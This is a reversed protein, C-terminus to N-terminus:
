GVQAGLEARATYLSWFKEAVTSPDVTASGDDWPTGKVLGLVTVEAVYVGRGKLTESLLRVVKHKAANAVALGMAGWKVAMADVAATPLGLGGNTVLVAAGPQAELDPLAARVAGVLGIVPLDFLAQLESPEAALLNGAGSGYANWQLVTIPGLEERVKEALTQIATPDALDTPYAAARIGQARLSSVGAQLREVSRAVLAVSFGKGGFKEALATSIGPGFGCLAITKSM